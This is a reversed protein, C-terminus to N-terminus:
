AAAVRHAFPRAAVDVVVDASLVVKNLSKAIDTQTNLLDSLLKLMSHGSLDEELGDRSAGSFDDVFRTIAM